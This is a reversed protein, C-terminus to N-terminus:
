EQKKRYTDPNINYRKLKEYINQRKIGSINSAMTIDGESRELLNEVYIKEFNEKADSFPLKYLEFGSIQEVVSRYKYLYSPLDEPMIKEHTAMAVAHEITNKLERINGKWEATTLISLVPGSIKLGIKNYKEALENVFTNALLVIDETRERLPPININIVNLRYYLDDRFNGKKVEEEIDKNTAAIIRVDFEFDKDGGVPRATGSELARLLKVQFSLSTETVEDLFLTGGDAEQFYGVKDRIADTFAGKKHGFLISELLNEPLSGCNVTVYKKHKRKSNRLIIDAFLEKGVGTEGTILVTADLPAVRKVKELIQQIALSNGIIKGRDFDRDLIHQLRQIEETQWQAKLIRDVLINLLELDEVPKEIFDEAGEKMAEVAMEISARGSIVLVAIHPWRKKITKLLEMGNEGPMILDVMAIHFTDNGLKDLAEATNGATEVIYKSSLQRRFIDRAEKEDDVIIIKAADKM